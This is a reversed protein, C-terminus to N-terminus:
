GRHPQWPPRRLLSAEFAPYVVLEEAVEHTLLARVLHPFADGRQELSLTFFEEMLERARVHDDSVVDVVVDRDRESTRWRDGAVASM